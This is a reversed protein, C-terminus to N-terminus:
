SADKLELDSLIEIDERPLWQWICERPIEGDHRKTIWWRTQGPYPEDGM